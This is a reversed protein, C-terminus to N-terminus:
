SNTIITKLGILGATTVNPIVTGTGIDFADSFAVSAFAGAATGVASLDPVEGTVSALISKTTTVVGM